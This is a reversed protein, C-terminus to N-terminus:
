MIHVIFRWHKFNSHGVTLSSICKCSFINNSRQGQGQPNIDCMLNGLVRKMIHGICRHSTAVNLPKSSANELFYMIQGKVKDNSGLDCMSVCFIAM